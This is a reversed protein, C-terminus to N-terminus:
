EEDDDEDDGEEEEEEEDMAHHHDDEDEEDEDEEDDDESEQDEEEGEAAHYEDEDDDDPEAATHDSIGITTEFEEVGHADWKSKALYSRLATTDLDGNAYDNAFNMMAKPDVDIVSCRKAVMRYVGGVEGRSNFRSPQHCSPRYFMFLTSMFDELTDANRLHTYLIDIAYVTSEFSEVPKKTRSSRRPETTAM